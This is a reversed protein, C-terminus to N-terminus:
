RQKLGLAILPRPLWVVHRQAHGIDRRGHVREGAGTDLQSRESGILGEFVRLAVDEM